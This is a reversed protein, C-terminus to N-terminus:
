YLRYPRCTPSPDVLPTSTWTVMGIKLDIRQRRTTIEEVRIKQQSTPVVLRRWARPRKRRNLDCRCTEPLWFSFVNTEAAACWRAQAARERPPNAHLCPIWVLPLGSATLQDSAIRQLKVADGPSSGFDAAATENAGFSGPDIGTLTGFTVLASLYSGHRSAHLYDNWWLNIKRPARITDSSELDLM